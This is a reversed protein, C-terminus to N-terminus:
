ASGGRGEGGRGKSNMEGDRGRVSLASPSISVAESKFEHTCVSRLAM